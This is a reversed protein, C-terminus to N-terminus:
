RSPAAEKGVKGNPKKGRRKPKAQTEVASSEWADKRIAHTCVFLIRAPEDSLSIMAHPMTSDIYVSDGKEMRLPEYHETHLEAVGELIIVFEEGRHVALEGYEELSRPKVTAITPVMHKNSIDTNLYEYIYNKTETIAGQGAWTVSRRATVVPQSDVDQSGSVLETLNIGIAESITIMRSYSLKVINNEIKSLTSVSIGTRDAVDQLSMKGALRHRKIQPGIDEVKSM